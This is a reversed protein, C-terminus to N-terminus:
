RDLGKSLKLIFGFQLSHSYLVSATLVNWVKWLGSKTMAFYSRVTLVLTTDVSQNTSERRQYCLSLITYNKKEGSHGILALAVSKAFTQRAM